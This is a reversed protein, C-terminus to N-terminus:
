INKYLIDICALYVFSMYSWEYRDQRILIRKYKKLKNFFNEVKIRKKYIKKENNTFTQLKSKDKINRRNHLIVPTYGNSKLKERIYKADYASDADNFLYEFDFIQKIISIPLM